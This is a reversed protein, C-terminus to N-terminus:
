WRWTRHSRRPVYAGCCCLLGAGRAGTGTGTGTGTHHWAHPASKIRSGARDPTRHPACCPSAWQLPLHRAVVCGRVHSERGVGLELDVGLPACARVRLGFLADAEREQELGREQGGVGLKALVRGKKAGFERCHVTRQANWCAGHRATTSNHNHQPPPPQPQGFSAELRCAGGEIPGVVVDLMTRTSMKGHHDAVWGIAVAHPSLYMPRSSPTKRCNGACGSETRVLPTHSGASRPQAARSAADGGTATAHGQHRRKPTSCFM